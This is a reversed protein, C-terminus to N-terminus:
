NLWESTVRGWGPTCLVVAVVALFFALWVLTAFLLVFTEKKLGNLYLHIPKGLVLLGTISASVVFLLLMFLPGLFNAPKGFIVQNNFGLWAVLSTYIFVGAAGIFSKLLYDTKKM